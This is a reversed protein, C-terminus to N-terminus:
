ILREMDRANSLLKAHTLIQVKTSTFCTFQTGIDRADFVADASLLKEFKALREELGRVQTTFYTPFLSYFYLLLSLLLSQTTRVADASLLTEVEM